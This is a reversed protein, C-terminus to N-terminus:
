KSRSGPVKHTAVAGDYGAGYVAICGTLCDPYVNNAGLPVFVRNTQANAAVSHATSAPHPNPQSSPVAPVNLTPVLQDLTNSSADIVGLIAAGQATLVPATTATGLPPRAPTIANPALPSGSAATYYHGDGPNFWVEDGVGAGLINAVVTGTIADLIVYQPAATHTERDANTTWKNGFEDFVTNCGVLLQENPGLALGAPGCFDVTYQAEVVGTPAIRLVAGVRNTSGDGSIEPISLYFKQTGPDWVPQEAGNTADVGHAADFTIRNTSPDPPTLACTTADFTILTGFPAPSSANNIALILSDRPDVALEDARTPDTPDTQVSNVLTLTAKDFSVVRSPADTVFLCNASTAVGNPGSCDNAGAPQVACPTFGAFGGTLQTVFTEAVVIDVAQNSRDALYYTGTTRDVFSIDFSYMGGTTNTSTVPIPVTNVLRVAVWPTYRRVAWAADGVLVLALAILVVAGPSRFYKRPGNRTM